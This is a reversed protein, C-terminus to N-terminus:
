YAQALMPAIGRLLSMIDEVFRDKAWPFRYAGDQGTIGIIPAVKARAGANTAM